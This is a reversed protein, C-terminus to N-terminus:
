HIRVAAPDSLGARHRAEGIEVLSRMKEAMDPAIMVMIGPRGAVLTQIMSAPPFVGPASGLDLLWTLLDAGEHTFGVLVPASAKSAEELSSLIIQVQEERGAQENKSCAGFLFAGTSGRM